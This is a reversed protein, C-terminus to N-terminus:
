PKKSARMKTRVMKLLCSGVYHIVEFLTVMSFGMCLGLIGGSNAVFWIMPIKQDRRIRTVVPKKMYVNVLALNDRCYSYVSKVLSLGAKDSLLLHSSKMTGERCLSPKSLIKNCLGPYHLALGEAKYGGCSRRLKNVVLCFEPRRVLTERNPM